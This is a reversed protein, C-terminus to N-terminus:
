HAPSSSFHLVVSRIAGAPADNPPPLQCSIEFTGASIPARYPNRVGARVHYAKGKTVALSQSGGKSLAYILYTNKDCGIAADRFEVSSDTNAAVNPVSLQLQGSCTATYSFWVDRYPTNFNPDQRNTAGLNTFTTVGDTISIAGTCEDNAPPAVSSANCTIQFRSTGTTSSGAAIYYDTGATVLLFSAYGTDLPEYLNCTSSASACSKDNYGTLTLRSFNLRSKLPIQHFLRRVMRPRSSSPPTYAITFAALLSAHLVPVPRLGSMGSIM